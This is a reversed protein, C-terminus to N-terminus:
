APATPLRRLKAAVLPSLALMIMGLALFGGRTPDYDSLLRGWSVGAVYRGFLFEFALTLALWLAGVALLRKRTRAGIWKISATAIALIILSGNFVGTQRARLDGVIPVLFLGRLIGHITEALIILLWVALTRALPM